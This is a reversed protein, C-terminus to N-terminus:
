NASTVATVVVATGALPAASWLEVL